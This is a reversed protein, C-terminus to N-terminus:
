VPAGQYTYDGFGLLPFFIFGLFWLGLAFGIGQGFARSVGSLMKYLGYINVLPIFLIILLWWWKNDGIQLMIYLNYIPIIAAWGPQNAKTFTKWMGAIALVVLVLVVLGFTGFVSEQLVIGGMHIGLM